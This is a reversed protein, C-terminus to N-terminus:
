PTSSSVKNDQGASEKSGERVSRSLEGVLDWGGGPIDSASDMVPLWHFFPRLSKEVSKQLVLVMTM